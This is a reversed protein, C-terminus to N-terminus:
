IWFLLRRRGSGARREAAAFSHSEAGVASDVNVADRYAVPLHGHNRRPRPIAVPRDEERVHGRDLIPREIALQEVPDGVDRAELVALIHDTLTPRGVLLHRPSGKRTGFALTGAALAVLCAASHVWGLALIDLNM